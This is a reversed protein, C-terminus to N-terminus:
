IEVKNLLYIVSNEKIEVISYFKGLNIIYQGIDTNQFSNKELKKGFEFDSYDKLYFNEKLNLFNLPNLEKEDEFKFDGENLRELASLTAKIGLKKSFIEAYSRIYAGESVELRLKLFPHKYHLIESKFIHMKSTKLEFEKGKRALEYARKGDVKKASFKPPIFEIEGKLDDVIIRIDDIQFPLIKEVEQINENDLSESKAGLWITAEYVKPEKKFFRFLKTFEGFAVILCGSAFPDLTGSFGAKKVGYKRKLRSLFLNSSIKSPKNAVFLRNKQM